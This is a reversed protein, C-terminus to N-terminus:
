AHVAKATNARMHVLHAADTGIDATAQAIFHWLPYWVKDTVAEHEIAANALVCVAEIGAVRSAIREYPCSELKM